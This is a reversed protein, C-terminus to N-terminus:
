KNAADILMQKLNMEEFQSKISIQAELEQAYENILVFKEKFETGEFMNTDRVFKLLM